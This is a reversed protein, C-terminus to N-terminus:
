KWVLFVDGPSGYGFSIQAGGSSNANRLLWNNGRVVGCTWTGNGDWDGVIPIDSTGNGYGFSPVDNGGATNENRLYWANGRVVGPTFTGDGNWDGVVPIDGADGYIFDHNTSATGSALVSDTLLWELQGVSNTRVIGPSWAGDGNWDGAVLVDGSQASGFVFDYAAGGGSRSNSLLWEWQHSANIRVVGPTMTGNGDWDGLVVETDNSGGYHCVFDAPGTTLSGRLEFYPGPIVAAPKTGVTVPNLLFANYPPVNVTLQGNSTQIISQGDGTWSGDANIVAGGLTYGNTAYWSSGTLEFLIASRVNTGLNVTTAMTKATDKNNLLASISGDAQKVGYATFYPQAPSVTASVVKGAPILSFMELGYFEPRVWQVTTTRNDYLPTYPSRGGGHLNVGQGGNLAVTFMFDLTWLGAGYADSVGPVGGGSFSGCEDMRLGGSIGDHNVMSVVGSINSMFASDAALMLQMAAPDANTYGSAAARYYHQTALSIVAAEDHSFNTTWVPTGGSAPGVIQGFHEAALKLPNWETIFNSYTYGPGRIGNHPYAEPENGIEFGLLQSGLANHVYSAEAACNNSTNVSFNIGYIVQWNPLAHMFDAFKSVQNTTIAVLGGQGNWSTLDVTGAGIRLVGHGLLNFLKILAYNTSTFFDKTLNTKEYSLGIFYPDIPLAPSSSFSITESVTSASTKEIGLALVLGLAILVACRFKQSMLDIPNLM